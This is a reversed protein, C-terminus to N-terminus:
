STAKSRRRRQRPAPKPFIKGEETLKVYREFLLALREPETTPRRRSAYLPDVARDLLAHAERLDVPTVGPAYLDALSSGQHAARADLVRQAATEILKMRKPDPEVFPFANYCLDPAIRIDSKLRGGVSRLWAMYMASQM